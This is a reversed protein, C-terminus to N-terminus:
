HLWEWKYATLLQPNHIGLVTVGMCCYFQHYKGCGIVASMHTALEWHASHHHTIYHTLLGNVLTGTTLSEPVDQGAPCTDGWQASVTHPLTHVAAFHLDLTLFWGPYYKFANRWSNKSLLLYQLYIRDPMWIGIISLHVSCSKDHLSSHTWFSFNHSSLIKYDICITSFQYEGSVVWPWITGSM